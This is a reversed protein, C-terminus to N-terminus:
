LNVCKHPDAFQVGQFKIGGVVETPV